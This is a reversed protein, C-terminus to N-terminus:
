LHFIAGFFKVGLIQTDCLTVKVAYMASIKDIFCPNHFSLLVMLPNFALRISKELNSIQRHGVSLAVVPTIVTRNYAGDIAKEQLLTRTMFLVPTRYVVFTVKANAADDLYRRIDSPLAVWSRVNPSGINPQELRKRLHVEINADSFDSEDDSM